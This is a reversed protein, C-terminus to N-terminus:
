HGTKSADLQAVALHHILWAELDGHKERSYGAQACALGLAVAETLAPRNRAQTVTLATLFRECDPGHADDYDTDDEFLPDLELVPFIMVPDNVSVLGYWHQPWFTSGVKAKMLSYGPLVAAAVLEAQATCQECM